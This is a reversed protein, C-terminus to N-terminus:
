YNRAGDAYFHNNSGHLPYYGLSLTIPFSCFASNPAVPNLGHKFHLILLYFGTHSVSLFHSCHSVPSWSSTTDSFGPFSLIAPLLCAYCLKLSASSFGLQILDKYKAILSISAPTKSFVTHNKTTQKSAQKKSLPFADSNCLNFDTNRPFLHPSYIRKLLKFYILPLFLSCPIM